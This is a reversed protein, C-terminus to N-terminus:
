VYPCSTLPVLQNINLLDKRKRARREAAKSKKTEKKGVPNFDKQIKVKVPKFNNKSTISSAKTPKTKKLKSSISIESGSPLPDIGAYSASFGFTFFLLLFWKKCGAPFKLTNM